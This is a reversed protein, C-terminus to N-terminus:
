QWSQLEVYGPWGIKETGGRQKLVFLVIGYGVFVLLIGAVMGGGFSGGSGKKSSGDSGETASLSPRRVPDSSETQRIFEKITKLKPNGADNEPSDLREWFQKGSSACKNRFAEYRALQDTLGNATADNQCAEPLPMGRLTRPMGMLLMVFLSDNEGDTCEQTYKRCDGSSILSAEPLCSSLSELGSACEDKFVHEFKSSICAGMRVSNGDVPYPFLDVTCIPVDSALNAFCKETSEPRLLEDRIMQGLPHNGLVAIACQEPINMTAIDLAGMSNVCKLLAGLMAIFLDEEMELQEYGACEEFNLFANRLTTEESSSCPRSLKAMQFMATPNVPMDPNSNRMSALDLGCESFSRDIEDMLQGLAVDEDYAVARVANGPRNDSGGAVVLAASYGFILLLMRKSM